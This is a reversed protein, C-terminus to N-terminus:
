DTAPFEPEVVGAKTQFEVLTAFGARAGNVGLWALKKSTAFLNVKKHSSFFVAHGDDGSFQEVFAFIDFDDNREALALLVIILTFSDFFAVDVALM